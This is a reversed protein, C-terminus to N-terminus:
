VSKTQTITQSIQSKFFVLLIDTCLLSHECCELWMSVWSLAALIFSQSLVVPRGAVLLCNRKVLYFGPSSFINLLNISFVELFCPISLYTHLDEQPFIYGLFVLKGEIIYWVITGHVTEYLMPLKPSVQVHSRKLNLRNQKRVINNQEGMVTVNCFCTIKNCILYLMFIWGYIDQILM